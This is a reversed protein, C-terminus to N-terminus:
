KHHYPSNNLISLSRYIQEALMVRFLQHPFVQDSFSWIIDALARVEASVGYAGGIVFVLRNYGGSSMLSNFREALELNNFKSGTEDLLIVYDDKGLKTQILESELRIQGEADTAARKPEVTQLEISCTQSIRKAYREFLDKEPGSLKAGVSLITLKM